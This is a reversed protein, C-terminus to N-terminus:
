AGRAYQAEHFPRGRELRVIKRSEALWRLAVSVQREDVRRRDGLLQNVEAIITRAGFRERPAKREVIKEVIRALRFRRGMAPIELPPPEPPAAPLGRAVLEAAAEASAKLSERCRILQELEAAYSARREQHFAERGAHFAEREANHAIRTELQALIEEVSAKSSMARDGMIIRLDNRAASRAWTSAPRCRSAALRDRCATLFGDNAAVQKRCASLRINETVLQAKRAAFHIRGLSFLLSEAVVYVRSAPQLSRNAPLRGNMAPFFGFRVLNSNLYGM